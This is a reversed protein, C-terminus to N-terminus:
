LREARWGGKALGDMAWNQTPGQDTHFLLDATLLHRTLVRSLRGRQCDAVPIGWLEARSCHGHGELKGVQKTLQGECSQKQWWGDWGCLPGSMNGYIAPFVFEQKWSEGLGASSKADQRSTNSKAM